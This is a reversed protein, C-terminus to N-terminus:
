AGGVSMGANSVEENSQHLKLILDGLGKFVTRINNKLTAMDDTGYRESFDEPEWHMLFIIRGLRDMTKYMDVVYSDIVETVSYNIALSGISAHDFVQRQGSAAAANALDVTSAGTPDMGMGQPSKFLNIGTGAGTDAEPNAFTRGEVEEVHFPQSVANVDQDWSSPAGQPDEPATIFAARKYMFTKKGTAQAQKAMDQAFTTPLDFAVAVVYALKSISDAEAVTGLGDTITYSGDFGGGRITAEHMGIKALEPMLGVAHVASDQSPELIVVRWHDASTIVGPQGDVRRIEDNRLGPVLTAIARLNDKSYGSVLKTGGDIKLTKIHYGAYQDLLQLNGQMNVLALTVNGDCTAEVADGVSDDGKARESPHTWSFSKFKSLDLAKDWLLNREDEAKDNPQVFIDAPKAKTAKFVPGKGNIDDIAYIRDASAPDSGYYDNDSADRSSAIFTDRTDGNPYRVKYLGNGNPNQYTMSVEVDYGEGLADDDRGDRLSFGDRMIDEAESETVKSTEGTLVQVKTAQDAATKPKLKSSFTDIQLATPQYFALASDAWEASKFNDLTAAVAQPGGVNKLYDVLISASKTTYTGMPDVAAAKANELAETLEPDHALSTAVAVKMDHWAAKFDDVEFDASARKAEPPRVINDDFRPTRINASGDEGANGMAGVSMGTIRNVWSETLPYMQDQRRDFLLDMGTLQNNSWFAPVYIPRDGVLFGLVGVAKSGDEPREVIEFGILYDLLGSARDKLFTLAINSFDQEFQANDPLEAAMKHMLKNLM